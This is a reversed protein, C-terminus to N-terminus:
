GGSGASAGTGNDQLAASKGENLRQVAKAARVGSSSEIEASNPVSVNRVSQVAINNATADGLLARDQYDHSACASLAIFLCVAIAPKIYRM